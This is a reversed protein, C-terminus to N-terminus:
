VHEYKGEYQAYEWLCVRQNLAKKEKWLQHFYYCDSIVRIYLFESKSGEDCFTMQSQTFYSYISRTSPRLIRFNFDDHGDCVCVSFGGMKVVRTKELNQEGM